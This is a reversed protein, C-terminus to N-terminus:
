SPTTGPPTCPSATCGRVGPGCEWGMWSEGGGLADVGQRCGGPLGCHRACWTPYWGRLGERQRVCVLEITVGSFSRYSKTETATRILSCHPTLPPSRLRVVKRNARRFLSRVFSNTFTHILLHSLSTSNWRSGLVCVELLQTYVHMRARARTHTHTHTQRVNATCTLYKVSWPPENLVRGEGKAGPSITSACTTSVRGTSHPWM